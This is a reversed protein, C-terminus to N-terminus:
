LFIFIKGLYKKSNVEDTQKNASFRNVPNGRGICRAGLRVETATIGGM